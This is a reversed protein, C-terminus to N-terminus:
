RLPVIEQKGDFEVRVQDASPPVLLANANGASWAGSDTRFSLRAGNSAVVWGQNSPLRVRVPLPSDRDPVGAQVYTTGRAAKLVAYSRTEERDLVMEGVSVQTGDPLVGYAIWQSSGIAYADRDRISEVAQRFGEQVAYEQSKNRGTLPWMREGSVQPWLRRDPTSEAGQRPTGAILLSTSRPAIAKLRLADPDTGPPLETVSIGQDFALRDYRHLSSGDPLYERRLSLGLPTGDDIAILAHPDSAGVVFGGLRGPGPYADGILTPAGDQGAGFFGAVTFVGQEGLNRVDSRNLYAQQVVIAAPGGATHGAWAVHAKGRLNDFIGRGRNLSTRHSEAWAALVDEIYARTTALDGRTPGERLFAYPDATSPTAAVEPTRSHLMGPGAVAIGAVLMATLAGTVLATARRRRLRRGGGVRIRDLLDAPAEVDAVGASLRDRLDTETM